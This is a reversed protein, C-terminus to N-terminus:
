YGNPKRNPRSNQGRINLYIHDYDLKKYNKKFFISTINNWDGFLYNGNGGM